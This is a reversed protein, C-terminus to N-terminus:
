NQYINLYQVENMPLSLIAENDKNVSVRYSLQKNNYENELVQLDSTTLTSNGTTNIKNLLNTYDNVNGVVFTGQLSSDKIRKLNM